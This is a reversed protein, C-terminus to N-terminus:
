RKGVNPPQPPTILCSTGMAMTANTEVPTLRRTKRYRLASSQRALEISGKNLPTTARVLQHFKYNAREEIHVYIRPLTLITGSISSSRSLRLSHVRAMGQGAGDGEGEEDGSGAEARREEDQRLVRDLVQLGVADLRTIVDEWGWEVDREGRLLEYAAKGVSQGDRDGERTMQGEAPHVRMKIRVTRAVEERAM